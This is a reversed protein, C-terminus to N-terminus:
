ENAQKQSAIFISDSLVRAVIEVQSRNDYLKQTKPSMQIGLKRMDDYHYGQRLLYTEACHKLDHFTFDHIGCEDILREFHTDAEIIKKWCGKKLRTLRGNTGTGVMPFLWPCDPPLGAEYDLFESSVNPLTTIKAKRKGGSTKQAVFQVTCVMRGNVVERKLDKRKLNFLDRKRIPNKLAFDIAWVLHSDWERLKNEITLQEAPSLIRSRENGQLIGYDMVAPIGCRKTRHAYNCVSRVVIKYNNATNVALDSAELRAAYQAYAAAFSAKDPYMRGLEKVARDYCAKSFGGNGREALYAEVCESFRKSTLSCDGTISQAEIVQRAHVIPDDTKRRYHTSKRDGRVYARDVFYWRTGKIDEHWIKMLGGREPLADPYLITDTILDPCNKM